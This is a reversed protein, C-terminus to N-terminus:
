RSEIEGRPTEHAVPKAPDRRLWHRGMGLGVVVASILGPILLTYILIALPDPEPAVPYGPLSGRLIPLLLLSM